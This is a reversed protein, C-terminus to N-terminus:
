GPAAKIFDIFARLPPPLIRPLVLRAASVPVNLRLTRTPTSRFASIAETATDLERLAPEVGALLVKAADTLGVSRTTRNLLKVGLQAEIRKVAESLNSASLDAARAAERFGGSRAV